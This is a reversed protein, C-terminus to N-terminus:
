HRMGIVSLFTGFTEVTDGRYSFYKDINCRTCERNVVINERKINEKQLQNVIVKQLDIHITDNSLSFIDSDDCINRFATAREEDITYCCKGISPGLEIHIMARSAGLSDATQLLKPIIGLLIGKYGAHAVGIVNNTSDKLIVPVCDGTVVGLFINGKNSVMADYSDHIHSIHNDIKLVNNGHVQKMLHLQDYPISHSQLFNQINETQPIHSKMMSGDSRQSTASIFSVKHMKM